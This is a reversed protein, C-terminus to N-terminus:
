ILGADHSGMRWLRSKAGHRSDHSTLGRIATRTKVLESRCGDTSRSWSTALPVIANLFAQGRRPDRDRAVALRADRQVLALRAIDLHLPGGRFRPDAEGAHRPLDGAAAGTRAERAVLRRAPLVIGDRADRHRVRDGVRCRYPDDGATPAGDGPLARPNRTRGSGRPVRVPAASLVPRRVLDGGRHHPLGEAVPDADCVGI